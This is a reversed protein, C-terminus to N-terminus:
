GKYVEVPRRKELAQHRREHNYFTFYSEMGHQLALGDAYDRLYIDEYKVTRWLREVFLNDYCRGRGTMSIQVGADILQGTFAESTFQAGQDTNFIAPPTEASLACALTELCFETELSNSIEWAVFM